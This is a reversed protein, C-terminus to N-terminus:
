PGVKVRYFCQGTGTPITVTWLGGSAPANNSFNFTEYDTWTKLNQSSQITYTAGSVIQFSFEFVGRGPQQAPLSLNIVPPISSANITLSLIQYTWTMTADAVVVIFVSTGSGIPTGSITGNSALSLGSPLSASGPSLSWTYPPQGGAAMLSTGYSANQTANSLNTTTIQLAVLSKFVPQIILAAPNDLGSAFTSRAGNTAFEYVYGSGQNAEFLNGASDFSLGEPESLGSAFTSYVGNTAIKNISSSGFDTEYLNGARDFALGWPEDLGSVFTSQVGNTTFKYINGSDWDAEYLNGTRDFALSMPWGLDSAFTSRVGAPTFKYINGSDADSEYLNGAVDFALGRPTNLGSAFTSRVGNATFKYIANNGADAVFLNGASDFAVGEEDGSLGSAFPSQAGNTTYEYVNGDGAAVFVNQASVAPPAPAIYLSLTQNTSNGNGDDLHVTFNFTGSTDPMGQIEGNGGFDLSSPFDQPDNLTWILTGSCTAGLLTVDYYNGVQADSLSTTFIHIGICLQIIFNNTANKGSIVASQNTPWEYTGSGLIKDLSDDGGNSNLSISWTGNAVNMSYNGNADTDVYQSYNVSNITANAGVGVGVINTGGAKVNGTIHNTALIATFNALVAQRSNINTGGNSDIDPQSFIYSAPKSDSSIRVQWNDNALGGLVGIFYNGNTDTFGDMDYLNINDSAGVDIGALPNGLSDKVSGYILATAEPVALTAGTAGASVNIGNNLGVYGHVILQQENPQINWNGATVPVNFNGNTDTFTIALLGNGSMASVLEGPLGISSNNADVVSGSISSTANTLTLNTTITQSAALTLLPATNMNDAYNGKLAVPMYTGPPLQVTYSGANNAVVGASPNGGPGSHGPRPPPFLLIIANPV